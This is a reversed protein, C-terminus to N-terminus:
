RASFPMGLRNKAADANTHQHFFRVLEASANPGLPDTHPGRTGGAWAHGGQHVTWREVLPIAGNDTYITRTYRRGDPVQGTTIQSRYPTLDDGYPGLAAEVLRDANVHNVTPDSDGHVVILPVTPPRPRQTPSAGNNMAALASLADSATGYALGSHVGVAAYIDPYTAAMVAAMAGGASFGAVYIRAPDIAHDAIIQRTVGAILSPEGSGRRQDAPQFWNWFRMPNASAPQEPYAVLFTHREAHMNMGTATAFDAASQTGGHLMVLLPMPNGTYGSPIYLRYRRAGTANAYSRDLLPRLGAGTPTPSNAAVGGALPLRSPPDVLGTSGSPGHPLVRTAFTHSEAPRYEPTLRTTTTM